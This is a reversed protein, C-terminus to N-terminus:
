LSVLNSTLGQAKRTNHRSGVQEKSAVLLINYVRKAKERRTYYVNTLHGIVITSDKKLM